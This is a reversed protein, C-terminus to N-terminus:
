VDGELERTVLAKMEEEHVPCMEGLIWDYNECADCERCAPRITASALSTAHALREKEEKEAAERALCAQRKVEAQTIAAQHQQLVQQAAEHLLGERMGKVVIADV